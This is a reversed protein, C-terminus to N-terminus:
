SEATATQATKGHLKLVDRIADLVRTLHFPKTVYGDAGGDMTDMFTEFSSEGTIMLVRTEPSADRIDRLVDIGSGDPLGIDLCVLAPKIERVLEMGRAATRAGGVVDMRKDSRVVARLIDSTVSDDEIIVVSLKESM